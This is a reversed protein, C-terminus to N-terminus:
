VLRAYVPSAVLGHSVLGGPVGCGLAARMCTRALVFLSGAAGSSWCDGLSRGLLAWMMACPLRSRMAADASTTTAWRRVSSTAYDASLRSDVPQRQVTAVVATTSTPNFKLHVCFFALM